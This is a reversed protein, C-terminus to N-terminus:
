RRTACVDIIRWDPGAVVGAPGIGDQPYVEALYVPRQACYTGARALAETMLAPTYVDFPITYEAFNPRIALPQQAPHAFVTPVFRHTMAAWTVINGIPRHWWRSWPIHSVDEGRASFVFSDPALTDSARLFGAFVDDTARWRAELLVTRGLLAVALVIAAAVGWGRGRWSPRMGAALFLIPLLALRFDLFSGSGARQPAALGVLLLAAVAVITPARLRPRGGVLLLLAFLGLGALMILAEAVSAGDILVRVFNTVKWYLMAPLSGAGVYVLNGALGAPAVDAATPSNLLLALIIAGAVLFGLHPAIRRTRAIALAEWCFLLGAFLGAAVLHCFFLVVAGLAAVAYRAGTRTSALWAACLLMLAGLGVVFDVFGWLFPGTYALIAGLLPVSDDWPRRADGIEDPGRLARALACFGLVFLATEATLFVRGAVALSLGLRTLVLLGVDMVVNPLMFTNQRYFQAWFPDGARLETLIHVRALHSPWDQLPAPAALLVPGCAAVLALLLPLWTGGLGGVGSRRGRVVATGASM